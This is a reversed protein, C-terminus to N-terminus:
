RKSIDVLKPNLSGCAEILSNRAKQERLIRHKKALKQGFLAVKKLQEVLM